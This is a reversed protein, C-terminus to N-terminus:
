DARGQQLIMIDSVVKRKLGKYHNKLESELETSMTAGFDRYLNFLAARHSNYSSSAYTDGNKKRLSLLWTMFVKASLLDFFIPPGNPANVIM